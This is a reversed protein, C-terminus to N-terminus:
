PHLDGHFLNDELLQRWLSNFLRTALVRPKVNNQACWAKGRMPDTHLMRIFDAMLVAHLFETVLVRRTCYQLFVKPVYIAHKRLTRRMRQTSAAEYRYDIEEALIQNLEWLLEGWHLNP